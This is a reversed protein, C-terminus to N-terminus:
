KRLKKFLDKLRLIVFDVEEQTTFRGLGLRMTFENPNLPKNQARRLAQIVHSAEGSSCASTSSFAIDPLNMLVQDALVSDISISLNNPLRNELHANLQIEPFENHLANWIEDRLNKLRLHESPMELAAIRCAEGLGVIGPVNHTGSRLGREQGGGFMYPTLRVRPQTQRVYLAGIGKPGYMKHASISLMDISDKQVDLNIKGCSQAADLHLLIGNSKCVESIKSIDQISGIENQAHIISVLVTNPKILSKLQEHSIFGNADVNLYDVQHGLKLLQKSVELSCKHEIETTILHFKQNQSEDTRNQFLGLIALHISETAGSTFIIERSQAGILKAVEQRATEIADKAEWGFSHQSSMANGYAETLFPMMRELVRPDLKTSAHNDLYIKKDSPKM